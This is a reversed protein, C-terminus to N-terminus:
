TNSIETRDATFFETFILYEQFSIPIGFFLDTIRFIQNKKMLSNEDCGLFANMWFTEIFDVFLLLSIREARKTEASTQWTPFSESTIAQADVCTKEPEQNFVQNRSDRGDFDRTPM